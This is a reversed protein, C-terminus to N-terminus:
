SGNKAHIEMSRESCALEKAMINEIKLSRTMQLTSKVNNYCVRIFFCSPHDLLLEVVGDSYEDSGM